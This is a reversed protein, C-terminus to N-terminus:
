FAARESGLLEMRFNTNPQPPATKEAKYFIATSGKAKRTKRAHSGRQKKQGRWRLRREKM